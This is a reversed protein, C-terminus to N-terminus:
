KGLFFMRFTWPSLSPDDQVHLIHTVLDKATTVVATEGFHDDAEANYAPPTEDVVAAAEDKENPFGHSNKEQSDPRSSSSESATVPFDTKEKYAPPQSAM